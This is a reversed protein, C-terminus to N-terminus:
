QSVVAGCTFANFALNVLLLIWIDNLTVTM